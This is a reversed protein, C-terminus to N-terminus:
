PKISNIKLRKHNEHGRSSLRRGCVIVSASEKAANQLRRFVWGNESHSQVMHRKRKRKKTKNSKREIEIGGGGWLKAGGGVCM